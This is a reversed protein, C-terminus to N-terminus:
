RKGFFAPCKIRTRRYYADSAFEWVLGIEHSGGSDTALGSVTLDYSYAFTFKDFLVGALFAIADQNVTSYTKQLPIGRYSIGLLLPSHQFGFRSTIDLQQVGGQRKYLLSPMIYVNGNGTYVELNAGAHFSIKRALQSQTGLISQNPQSIHHMSIGAWVKDNHLLIGSSFDFFSHTTGWSVESVSTEDDMVESVFILNSFDLNKRFFTGQLGLRLIWDNQMPIMFSYIGGISTTRLRYAGAQDYGLLLGVGSRLFDFNWEGSFTTTQSKAEISQWQLRQVLSFRFEETTGTLAPNLYIPAHNFQTFQPDQALLCSQSSGWLLGILGCIRGLILFPIKM